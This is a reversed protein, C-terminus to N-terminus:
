YEERDRAELLRRTRALPDDRPLDDPVVPIKATPRLRHKDLPDYASRGDAILLVGFGVLPVVFCAVAALLTARFESRATSRVVVAMAPDDPDYYVTISSGPTHAEEFADIKADTFIPDDDHSLLCSDYRVQDVHFHYAIRPRAVSQAVGGVIEKDRYMHLADVTATASLYVTEARHLRRYQFAAMSGFLAGLALVAAIFWRARHTRQAPVTKRAM